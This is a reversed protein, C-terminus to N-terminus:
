GACYVVKLNVPSKALVVAALAMALVIFAQVKFMRREKQNLTSSPCKEKCGFVPGKKEGKEFEV